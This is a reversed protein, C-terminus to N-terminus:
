TGVRVFAELEAVPVLRRAGEKKTRLKGAKMARWLTTRSLTTLREAEAISYALPQHPNTSATEMHQM